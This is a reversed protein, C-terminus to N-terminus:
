SFHVSMTAKSKFIRKCNFYPCSVADGKNLHENKYHKTLEKLTSVKLKCLQISCKIIRDNGLIPFVTTTQSDGHIRRLHSFFSSYNRFNKFCNEVNCQFSSIYTNSLSNSHIQFHHIYSKISNTKEFCNPCM